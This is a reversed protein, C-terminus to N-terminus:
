VLGLKEVLLKVHETGQLLFVSGDVQLCPIGIRGKGRLENFAASTDRVKLFTQLKHMDSTIDIYTFEVNMETLFDKVPGCGSCHESGFLITKKTKANEITLV